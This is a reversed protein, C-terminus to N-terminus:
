ITETEPETEGGHIEAGEPLEAIPLVQITSFDYAANVVIVRAYENEGHQPTHICYGENARIRYGVVPNGLSEYTVNQLENITM